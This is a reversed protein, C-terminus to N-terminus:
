TSTTHEDRTYSRRRRQSLDFPLTRESCVPDVDPWSKSNITSTDFKSDKTPGVDRFTLHFTEDLPIAEETNAFQSYDWDVRAPDKWIALGQWHVPDPQPAQNTVDITVQVGERLSLIPGPIQGICALTKISVGKGIDLTTPQIQLRYDTKTPTPRIQTALGPRLSGHALLVGTSVIFNRRDM